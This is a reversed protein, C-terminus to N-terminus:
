PDILFELASGEKDPSTKHGRRASACAKLEHRTDLACLDFGDSRIYGARKMTIPLLREASHNALKAFPWTRWIM